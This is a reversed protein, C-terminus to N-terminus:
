DIDCHVLEGWSFENRDSTVKNFFNTSTQISLYIPDGPTSSTELIYLNSGRRTSPDIDGYFSNDM